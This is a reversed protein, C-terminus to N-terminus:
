ITCMSVRGHAHMSEIRPMTQMTRRQMPGRNTPHYSSPITRDTPRDTQRSASASSPRSLTNTIAVSLGSTEVSFTCRLAVDSDGWRLCLDASALAPNRLSRVQNLLHELSRTISTVVRAALAIFLYITKILEVILISTLFSGSLFSSLVIWITFYKYNIKCTNVTYLSVLFCCTPGTM